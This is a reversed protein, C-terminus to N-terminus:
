PYQIVGAVDTPAAAGGQGYMQFTQNIGGAKPIILPANLLLVGSPLILKKKLTIADQIALNLAVDSATVGTPDVGAYSSAYIVGTVTGISGSGSGSWEIQGTIEGM